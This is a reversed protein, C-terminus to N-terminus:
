KLDENLDQFDNLTRMYTRVRKNFRRKVEVNSKFHHIEKTPDRKIARSKVEFM